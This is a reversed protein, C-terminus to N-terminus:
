ARRVARAVGQALWFTGLVGWVAREWWRGSTAALGACFLLLGVDLGARVGPRRLTARLGSEGRGAEWIAWSVAALLTALGLVWLGDAAVARLGNV